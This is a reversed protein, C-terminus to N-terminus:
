RQGNSCRFGTGPRPRPLPEANVIVALLLAATATITKMMATGIQWRFQWRVLLSVTTKSPVSQSSPM